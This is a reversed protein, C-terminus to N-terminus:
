YPNRGTVAVIRDLLPADAPVPVPPSWLEPIPADPVFVSVHEWCARLTEEPLTFPQGTARALDWGHVVVETFAIRGWVENALEIGAAPGTGEWAAPETWATALRLLRQALRERWGEGFDVDAGGAGDSKRAVATFGVAVQDIHGILDKVAYDACPTPDGLREDGVGAVVDILRVCAPAFDIVM